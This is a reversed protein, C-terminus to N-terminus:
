RSSSSASCTYLIYLYLSSIYMKLADEIRDHCFCGQKQGGNSSHCILKNSGIVLKLIIHTVASLIGLMLGFGLYLGVSVSCYVPVAWAV